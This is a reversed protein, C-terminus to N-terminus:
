ALTGKASYECGAGSGEPPEARVIAAHLAKSVVAPSAIKCLDAGAAVAPGSALAALALILALTVAFEMRIALAIRMATATRGRSKRGGGISGNGNITAMASEM